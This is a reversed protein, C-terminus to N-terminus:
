GSGDEDGVCDGVIARTSKGTAAMSVADAEVIKIGGSVWTSEAGDIEGIIVGESTGATSGGENGPGDVVVGDVDLSVAGSSVIGGGGLEVKELSPDLEWCPAVM